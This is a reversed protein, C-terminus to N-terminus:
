SIGFDTGRRVADAIKEALEGEVFDDTMVNGSINVTVGGGGANMFELNDVGISDVADRNMIFEGREAEIVTGGQAHRNGGVMGGYEYSPMPQAMVIAANIAGQAKMWTALSLGLLGPMQAHTGMTAVATKIYIDSIALAKEVMFLNKRRQFYKDQIDKEMQERKTADAREWAGTKKKKAIEANAQRDLNSSLAGTVMQATDIAIQASQLKAAQYLNELEIAYELGEALQEFTIIQAKDLEIRETSATLGEEIVENNHKFLDTQIEIGDSLEKTTSKMSSLVEQFNEYSAVIEESSDKDLRRVDLLEKEKKLLNSLQEELLRIHLEKNQIAYTEEQNLDVVERQGFINTQVTGFLEEYAVKEKHLADIQDETSLIQKDIEGIRNVRSQIIIRARLLRNAEQAKKNILDLGDAEDILGNIYNGYKANIEGIIRSRTGEGVNVDNLVSILNNFEAREERISDVVPTQSTLLASMKNALFSVMPAFREGINESIDGIINSLQTMSGTLTNTQEKAQGGFTKAISETLSNLRSSSGVVGEVEIGYRSLSNTSSGLTKSVLDAAATLDMGKAAALDLTAETAAKIQQEDDVFAAILAQASIIAEDGFSTVRQLASAQALLGKSTKGLATELKKEALEQEAFARVTAGITKNVIAIAFSALLLKSRLTAFSNNLLRNNRIALPAAKGGYKELERNLKKQLLEAKKNGQNLRTQAVALQDIASKLGKAGRSEFQVLIKNAM